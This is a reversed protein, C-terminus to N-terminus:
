VGERAQQELGNARADRDLLDADHLADRARSQMMGRTPCDEHSHMCEHGIYDLASKYRKVRAELQGRDSAYGSLVLNAKIAEDREKTLQANAARLRTVEESLFDRMCSPCTCMKNHDSM